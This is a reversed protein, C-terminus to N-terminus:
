IMDSLPLLSDHLIESSMFMKCVLEIKNFITM